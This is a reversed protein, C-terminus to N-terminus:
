AMARHRGAPQFRRGFGRFHRGNGRDGRFPHLYTVALGKTARWLTVAVLCLVAVLAVAAIIVLCFARLAVSLASRFAVWVRTGWDPWVAEAMAGLIALTLGSGLTWALVTTGVAVAGLTELDM